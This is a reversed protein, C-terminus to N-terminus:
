LEGRTVKASILVSLSAHIFNATESMQFVGSTSLVMCFYNWIYICKQNYLCQSLIATPTQIIKNIVPSNQKIKQFCTTSQIVFRCSGFYFRTYRLHTLIYNTYSMHLCRLQKYCSHYFLLSCLLQIITVITHWIKFGEKIKKLFTSTSTM